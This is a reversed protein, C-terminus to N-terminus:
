DERKFGHRGRAMVDGLDMSNLAKGRMENVLKRGGDHHNKRQREEEEARIHDRLTEEAQERVQGHLAAVRDLAANHQTELEHDIRDLRDYFSKREYAKAKKLESNHLRLDELDKALDLMLQKSPSDLPSPYNLQQRGM